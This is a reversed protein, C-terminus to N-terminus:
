RYHRLFEYKLWLSIFFFCFCFFVFFTVFMNSQCRVELLFFCYGKSYLEISKIIIPIIISRSCISETVFTKALTSISANVIYPLKFILQNDGLWRQRPGICLSLHKYQYNLLVAFLGDMEKTLGATTILAVEM